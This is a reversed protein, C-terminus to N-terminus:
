NKGINQQLKKFATITPKLLCQQMKILDKLM